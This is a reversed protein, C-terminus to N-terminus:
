IKPSLLEALTTPTSCLMRAGARHLESESGYGWLVGISPVGHASAAIVDAARDGVMLAEEARLRERQLAYSILEAKDDFRGDLEVGYVANFLHAIGFHKVIREAFVTPKSTAVLMVSAAPRVRELMAGIGAYIRTEYIGTDTYRERYLRVAEEILSKEAQDGLLVSFLKRLPPGIFSELVHDPPSPRNLNELAYRTCALIGVKPDTLTGDLDFLFVSRGWPAGSMTACHLPQATM